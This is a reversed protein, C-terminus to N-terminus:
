TATDCVDAVDSTRYWAQQMPDYWVGSSSDFFHGSVWDFYVDGGPELRMYGVAEDLVWAEDSACMATAVRDSAGNPADVHICGDLEDIPNHLALCDYPEARTSPQTSDVFADREERKNGSCRMVVRGIALVCDKAVIIFTIWTSVLSVYESVQSAWAGDEQEIVSVLLFLASLCELFSLLIMGINDIPVDFPRTTVMALLYVFMSGFICGMQAICGNVTDPVMAAAMGFVLALALDALTFLRGGGRFPAYLPKFLRHRLCDDANSTDRPYWDGRPTFLSVFLNSPPDDSGADVEEPSVTEPLAAEGQDDVAWPRPVYVARMRQGTIQFGLYVCGSSAFLTSFTGLLYMSPHDPSQSALVLSSLVIPQLFLMIWIYNARPLRAFLLRGGLTAGYASKQEATTRLAVGGDDPSRVQDPSSRTLVHLLMAVFVQLGAMGLLIATDAVLAGFYQRTQLGGLALRTPNVLFELSEDGTLPKPCVTLSGLIVSRSAHGGLGPNSAALSGGGVVVVTTGQTSTKVVTPVTTTAPPANTIPAADNLALTTNPVDLTAPPRFTTGVVTTQQVTTTTAAPASSTPAPTPNLPDPTPAQTTIPAQTTMPATTTLPAVTTPLAEAVTCQFYLNIASPDNRGDNCNCLCSGDGEVEVSSARSTECQDLACLGCPTDADVSLDLITSLASYDGDIRNCRGHVSTIGNFSSGAKEVLQVGSQMFHNDTMHLNTGFMAGSVQLYVSPGSGSMDFRNNSIDLRPSQQLTAWGVCYAVGTGLNTVTFNNNTISLFSPSYVSGTLAVGSSAGSLATSSLTLKNNDIVLTADQMSGTALYGISMTAEVTITNHTVILPSSCTGYQAIGYGSDTPASLNFRNYSIYSVANVFQNLYVGTATGSSSVVLVENELIYLRDLSLVDGLLIATNAAPGELSIQSRVITIRGSGMGSGVTLDFGSLAVMVSTTMIFTCDAVFLSSGGLLQGGWGIFSRQASNLLTFTSRVVVWETNSIGFAGRVNGGLTCDTLNFHSDYLNMTQISGRVAHVQLFSIRVNTHAGTARFLYGEATDSNGSGVATFNTLSLDAGTSYPLEIVNLMTASSLAFTLFVNRVDVVLPSPVSTGFSMFTISPGNAVVTGQLGDIVVSVDRCEGAFAILAAASTGTNTDVTSNIFTLSFGVASSASVSVRDRLTSHSMSFSATNPAQVFEVAGVTSDTISISAGGGLGDFSMAAINCRTIVIQGGSGLDQFDVTGLDLDQLTQSGSYSVCFTGHICVAVTVWTIFTSSLM